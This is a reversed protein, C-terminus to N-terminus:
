HGVAKLLRRFEPSNELLEQGVDILAQVQDPTLAFNTPLNLFFNKRKEEPIAEFNVEIVYPDVIRAFTPLRPGGPCREDLIRQCDEVVRQAKRREELLEKMLEVSEFSYNDLSITATKYAVTLLGPPREQQSLEEQPATRANVVIVVLKEIQGQNILKRIFGNSRRYANEIARLGINDAMGGDM